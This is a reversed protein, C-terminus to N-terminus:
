WFKLFAPVLISACVGAIALMCLAAVAPSTDDDDGHYIPYGHRDTPEWTTHKRNEPNIPM